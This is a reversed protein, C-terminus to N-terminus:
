SLFRFHINLEARFTRGKPLPLCHFVITAIYCSIHICYDEMGPIVKFSSLKIHLCRKKWSTSGFAKLFFARTECCMVQCALSALWQFKVQCSSEQGSRTVRDRSRITFWEIDKGEGGKRMGKKKKPWGM